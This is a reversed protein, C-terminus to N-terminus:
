DPEILEDQVWALTCIRLPTCGADKERPPHPFPDHRCSGAYFRRNRRVYEVDNLLLVTQYDAPLGELASALEDGFMADDDPGADPDALSPHMMRGSDSHGGSGAAEEQFDVVVAEYQKRRYANIYSHKCIQFLWARCNTGLRFTGFYRFAKLMTEQVLDDSRQPDRTLTEAYRRLAPLQALAEREFHTPAAMLFNEPLAIEQPDSPTPCNL